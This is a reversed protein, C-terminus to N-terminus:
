HVNAVGNNAAGGVPTDLAAIEFKLGGIWALIIPLSFRLFEGSLRRATSILLYEM